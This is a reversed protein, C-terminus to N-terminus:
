AKSGQFSLGGALSEGRYTTVRGGRSHRHPDAAWSDTDRSRYDAQTLTEDSPTTIKMENRLGEIDESNAWAKISSNAKTM